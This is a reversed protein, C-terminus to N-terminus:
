ALVAAALLILAIRGPEANWSGTSDQGIRKRIEFTALWPLLNVATWGVGALPGEPRGQLGNYLSCYLGGGALLVPLMASRPPAPRDLDAIM